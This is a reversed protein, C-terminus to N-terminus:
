FHPEMKVSPSVTLHLNKKKKKKKGGFNEFHELNICNGTLISLLFIYFSKPQVKKGQCTDTRAENRTGSLMIDNNSIIM